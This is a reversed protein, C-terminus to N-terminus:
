CTSLLRAGIRGLQGTKEVIQGQYPLLERLVPSEEITQQLGDAKSLYEEYETLWSDPRVNVQAAEYVLVGLFLLTPLIVIIVTLLVTPATPTPIGALPSSRGPTM